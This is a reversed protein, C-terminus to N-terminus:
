EHPVVLIRAHTGKSCQESSLSLYLSLSLSDRNKVFTHKRKTARSLHPNHTGGFLAAPTNPVFFAERKPAAADIKRETARAIGEEM